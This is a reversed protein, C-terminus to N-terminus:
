RVKEDRTFCFGKNRLKCHIVRRKASSCGQHRLKCHFVQGQAYCDSSSSPLRPHNSIVDSYCIIFPYSHHSLQCLTPILSRGPSLPLVRLFVQERSLNSWWSDKIPHYLRSSPIWATSPSHKLREAM